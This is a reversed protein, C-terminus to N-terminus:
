YRWLGFAALGAKCRHFDRSQRDFHCYSGRALLSTEASSGSQVSARGDYNKFSEGESFSGNSHDIRVRERFTFSLM